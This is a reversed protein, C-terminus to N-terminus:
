LYRIETQPPPLTNIQALALQALRLEEAPDRNAERIASAFELADAEADFGWSERNTQVLTITVPKAQWVPKRGAARAAKFEAAAAAGKKEPPTVIIRDVAITLEGHSFDEIPKLDIDSAEDIVDSVAGMSLAEAPPTPITFNM